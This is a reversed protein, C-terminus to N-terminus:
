STVVYGGRMGGAPRDITVRGPGTRLIPQAHPPATQGSRRPVPARGGYTAQGRAIGRTGARPQWPATGDPIGWLLLRMKQVDNSARWQAAFGPYVHRLRDLMGAREGGHAPCRLVFHPEDEIAPSGHGACLTCTRLHLPTVPTCQAGTLSRLCHSHLRLNMLIGIDAASHQYNRLKAVFGRFAPSPM